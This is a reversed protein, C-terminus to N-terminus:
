RALLSVLRAPLLDRLCAFVSTSSKMETQWSIEEFLSIVDWPLVAISQSKWVVEFNSGGALVHVATACFLFWNLGGNIISNRLPVLALRINAMWIMSAKCHCNCVQNVWVTEWETKGFRCPEFFHQRKRARNTGVIHRGITISDRAAQDLDVKVRSKLRWWLQWSSNSWNTPSQAVMLLIGSTLM